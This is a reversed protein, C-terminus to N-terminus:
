LKKVIGREEEEPAKDAELEKMKEFNPYHTDLYVERM